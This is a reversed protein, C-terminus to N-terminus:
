INIRYSYSKEKEKPSTVTYAYTIQGTNQDSTKKLRFHINLQKKFGVKLKHTKPVTYELLRAIRVAEEDCGHGIGSLVKVQHVKGEHDINFKLKVTGEIGKEKAETPYQMHKGIFKRLAETGGEYYARYVFDKEKKERSM